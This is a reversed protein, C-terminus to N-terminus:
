FNGGTLPQTFSFTGARGPHQRWRSYLKTGTVRERAFTIVNFTLSFTIYVQISQFFRTFTFVLMSIDLNSRGRWLPTKHLVTQIQLSRDLKCGPHSTWLSKRDICSSWTQFMYVQSTNTLIITNSKGSCQIYITDSLPTALYLLTLVLFRVSVIVIM